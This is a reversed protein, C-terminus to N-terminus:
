NRIDKLLTPWNAHLLLCLTELLYPGPLTWLHLPPLPICSALPQITCSWSFLFKMHLYWCLTNLDIPSCPFQSLCCTESLVFFVFLCVFFSCLASQCNEWQFAQPVLLLQYISWFPISSMQLSKYGQFWNTSYGGAAAWQHWEPVWFGPPLASFGVFSMYIGINLLFILILQALHFSSCAISSTTPSPVNTSQVASSLVPPVSSSFFSDLYFLCLFCLCLYFVIFCSVGYHFLSSDQCTTVNLWKRVSSM